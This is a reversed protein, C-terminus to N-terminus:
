CLPRLSPAKGRPGRAPVRARREGAGAVGSSLTVPSHRSLTLVGQRSVPPGGVVCQMGSQSLEGMIEGWASKIDVGLTFKRHSKLRSKM